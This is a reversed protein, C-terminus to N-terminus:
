CEQLSKIEAYGPVFRIYDPFQFRHCQASFPDVQVVDLPIDPIWPATFGFVENSLDFANSFSRKGFLEVPM